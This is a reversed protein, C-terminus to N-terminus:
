CVYVFISVVYEDSFRNLPDLEYKLSTYYKNLPHEIVDSRSNMAKTAIRINTLVQCM